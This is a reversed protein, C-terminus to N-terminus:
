GLHVNYCDFMSRIKDWTDYPISNDDESLVLVKGDLNLVNEKDPIELEKPIEGKYTNIFNEIFYDPLDYRLGYEDKYFEYYTSYPEYDSIIDKIEKTYQGLYKWFDINIQHHDEYGMSYVRITGIYEYKFPNFLFDRYKYIIDEKIEPDTFYGKIFGYLSYPYLYFNDEGKTSERWKRYDEIHFIEPYRFGTTITKLITNVEECTKDTNLVFLESSSNTIVDNVSQIDLILLKM